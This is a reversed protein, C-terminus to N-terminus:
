QRRTSGVVQRLPRRPTAQAEAGYGLRLVAQPQVQGGVLAGLQQRIEAVEIPQSLFSASVGANCARLLVRAVAQGACLWAPPNDQETAFVALCPAYVVAMFDDVAVAEGWGDQEIAGPMLLSRLWGWGQTYGPLGDRRLSFNSRLLSAVQRRFTPSAAQRRDGEAVLRGIAKRMDEGEVAILRAGEARADNRLQDLLPEPLPRSDFPMRQTHRSQIAPFLVRLEHSTLVGPRLELRALLDEDGGRPFVSIRAACEFRELAVRLLLLAAGCSIVLERGRRDISPLARDRDAYLELAEGDIVFRWPQSNRISPALVAYRLLFRWQDAASGQAPFDSENIDWSDLKPNFM